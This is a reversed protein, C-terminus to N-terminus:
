IFHAYELLGTDFHKARINKNTKGKNLTFSQQFLKTNLFHIGTLKFRIQSEFM